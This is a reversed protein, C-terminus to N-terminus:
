DPKRAPVVRQCTKGWEGPPRFELVYDLAAIGHLEVIVTDILPYYGLARIRIAHEGESVGRFLFVGSDSTVAFERPNRSDLEVQARGWGERPSEDVDIHGRLEGNPASVHRRLTAPMTVEPCPAQALRPWKPATIPVKTPAPSEAPGSLMGCADNLYMHAQELPLRVRVGATAAVELTDWRAEYGIMRTHLVYRGAPLPGVAFSGAKDTGFIIDPMRLELAAGILATDGRTTVVGSILGPHQRDVEFRGVPQSIRSVPDSPPRFQPDCEAQRSTRWAPLFGYPLSATPVAATPRACAVIGAISVATIIVGRARDSTLALQRLSVRPHGTRRRTVAKGDHLPVPARSVPAVPWITCSASTPRASM